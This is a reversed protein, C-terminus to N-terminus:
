IFFYDLVTSNVVSTRWLINSKNIVIMIHGIEIM